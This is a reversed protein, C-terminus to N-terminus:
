TALGSGDFVRWFLMIMNFYIMVKMRQLGMYMILNRSREEEENAVKVAEKVTKTTLVKRQTMNKKVVAAWSELKM